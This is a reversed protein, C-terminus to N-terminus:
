VRGRIGWDTSPTSPPSHAVAVMFVMCGEWAGVENVMRHQAVLTKGKFLPSEVEMNYMAGCGGPVCRRLPRCLLHILRWEFLGFARGCVYGVGGFGCCVVGWCVLLCAGSIDQIVLHTPQLKEQLLTRMRGERVASEASQADAAGRDGSSSSLLRRISSAALPARSAALPARPRAAAATTAGTTPVVILRRLM